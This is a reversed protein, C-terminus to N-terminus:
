KKNAPLTIIFTAGKGRTSEVKIKGEMAEVAIKCFYLGLGSGYKKNDKRKNTQIYKEFIKSQFRKDIGYGNDSIRFIVENNSKNEVSFTIKTNNPTHKIANSFLNYLVRTLLNKDAYVFIEYASSHFYLEKADSKHMLFNNYIKEALQVANFLCSHIEMKESELKSVDLIGQILVEMETIAFSIKKLNTNIDDTKLPARKSKSSLYHTYGKIASLPANLDHVIINALDDRAAELAQLTQYSKSLQMYIFRDQDHMFKKELFNDIKVKLLVPNFPKIIYDVAGAKICKIINDLKEVGSIVIVPFLHNMQEKKLYELFALGDMEPMIMDLLVLDPITKNLVKVAELGNEALIPNLSADKLFDKLFALNTSDDEVVLINGVKKSSKIKENKIKYDTLKM